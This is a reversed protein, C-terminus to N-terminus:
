SFTKFDEQAINSLLAITKATKNPDMPHIQIPILEEVLESLNKWWANTEVQGMSAGFAVIRLTAKLWTTM